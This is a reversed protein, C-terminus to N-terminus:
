DARRCAMLLPSPARDIITSAVLRRPRGSRQRTV